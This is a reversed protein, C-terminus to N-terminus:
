QESSKHSIYHDSMQLVDFALKSQNHAAARHPPQVRYAPLMAPLPLPLVLGQRVTPQANKLAVEGCLNCASKGYGIMDVNFIDM